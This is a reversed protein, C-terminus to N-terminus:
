FTRMGCYVSAAFILILSNTAKTSASMTESEWEIYWLYVALFKAYVTYDLNLLKTRSISLTYIYLTHINASVFRKRPVAPLVIYWHHPDPDPDADLDPPDM